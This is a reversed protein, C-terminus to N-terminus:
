QSAAAWWKVTAVALKAASSSPRKIGAYRARKPLRCVLGSSVEWMMAPWLVSPPGLAHRSPLLWSHAVGPRSRKPFIHVEPSVGCVTCKHRPETGEDEVYLQKPRARQRPCPPRKEGSRYWMSCNYKDEAESCVRMPCVDGGVASDSATSTVIEHDALACAVLPALLFLLRFLM